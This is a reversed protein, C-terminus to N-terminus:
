RSHQVSISVEGDNRIFCFFCDIRHKIFYQSILSFLLHLNNSRMMCMFERKIKGVILEIGYIGNTTIQLFYM